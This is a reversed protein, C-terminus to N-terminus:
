SRASSKLLASHSSTQVLLHRGSTSCPSGVSRVPIITRTATRLASGSTIDLSKAGSVSTAKLCHSAVMLRIVVLRSRYHRTSSCSSSIKSTTRNLLDRRSRSSLAGISIITVMCLTSTLGSALKCVVKTLPLSRRTNLDRM